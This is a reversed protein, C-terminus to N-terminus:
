REQEQKWREFPEDDGRSQAELVDLTPLDAEPPPWPRAPKRARKPRRRARRAAMEDWTPLATQGPWVNM